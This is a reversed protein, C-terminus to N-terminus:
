EAFEINSLLHVINSPNGNHLLGPFISLLQSNM